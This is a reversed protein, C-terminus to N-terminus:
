GGAVGRATSALGAVGELPVGSALVGMGESSAYVRGQRPLFRPEGQSLVRVVTAPAFGGAGNIVAPGNHRFAAAEVSQMAVLLRTGRGRM